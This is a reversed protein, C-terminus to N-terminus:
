RNGTMDPFPLKISNEAPPPAFEESQPEAARPISRTVDNEPRGLNAGPPPLVLIPQDVARGGGEASEGQPAGSPSQGEGARESARLAEEVIRDLYGADPESRALADKAQEPRELPVPPGNPIAEERAAPKEAAPAREKVTGAKEERDVGEQLRNVEGTKGGEPKQAEPKEAPPKEAELAPRDPTKTELKRLTKEEDEQRERAEQQAEELRRVDAELRRVTLFGTLPSIDIERAISQLPGTYVLVVSPVSLDEVGEGEEGGAGGAGPRPALTWESDVRNEAIDYHTSVLVKARASQVAVNKATLIGDTVTFAGEIREFSLAGADLYGAFAARVREQELDLGADAASILRAFARPDLDEIQGDIASFSGEGGLSTALARLSRGEGALQVSADFRGNAAPRAAGRELVEELAAGTLALRARMTAGTTQRHLRLSGEASGGFIEGSLNQLSVEGKGTALDFRAHRAKLGRALVLEDASVRLEGSLRQALSLDFRGGPWLGEGAEALAEPGLLRELLWGADLSDTNVHGTLRTGDRGEQLALAGAVERAGVHGTIDAFEWGGGAQRSVKGSLAAGLGKGAAGDGLGGARLLPQLDKARLEGTGSFRLGEESKVTGDLRAEAAFLNTRAALKAGEAPVGELSFELLGEANGAGARDKGGALGIQRALRGGDANKATGSLEIRGKAAEALKGRFVLGAKTETGGAQGSLAATARTGEGSRRAKLTLDLAAPSLSAARAALWEPALSVLNLDGALRVFGTLDESKLSATIEGDANGALDEIRGSASLATGAVDGLSLSEIALIGQGYRLDARLAKAEVGKVKLAEAAIQLRIEPAPVGAAAAGNEGDRDKARAPTLKVYRDFDLSDVALELDIGRREGRLYTARGSVLSDDLWAKLDEVRVMQASSVIHAEASFASDATQLELTAFRLPPLALWQALQAMRQVNLRLRGDFRREGSTSDIEFAGNIRAKGPLRADFDAVSIRGKDIEASLEVEEVLGGSIVAAEAVLKLDLPLPLAAAVHEVLGLTGAVDAVPAARGPAGALARDFDIQRAELRAALRPEPRLALTGTGAFKVAREEPGLSLELSQLAIAGPDASIEASLHWPANEELGGDPPGGAHGLSGVRVTGNFVPSNQSPHLLGDAALEYAGSAPQVFLKTRLAGDGRARGTGFRFTYLTDGLRAGGEGRYPGALSDASGTLNVGKLVQASQTGEDGLVLTGDRIELALLMIRAPAAASEPGEDGAAEAEERAIRAARAAEEPAALPLRLVPEDLRIEEVRVEGKLLPTLAIRATLRPAVIQPPREGARKEAHAVRVDRATIVPMPLIQVDLPGALVVERGSLDSLRAEFFARHANWDVFFPAVLATVLALVAVIGISLLTTNM